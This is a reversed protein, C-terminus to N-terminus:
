RGQCDTVIRVLHLSSESASAVQGNCGTARGRGLSESNSLGFESPFVNSRFKPAIFSRIIM